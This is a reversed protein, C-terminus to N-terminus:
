RNMEATTNANFIPEDARHSQGPSPSLFFFFLPFCVNQLCMCNIVEKLADPKPWCGCKATTPITRVKVSCSHRQCPSTKKLFFCEHIQNFAKFHQSVTSQIQCVSRKSTSYTRQTQM